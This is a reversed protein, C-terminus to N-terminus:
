EQSVKWGLNNKKPIKIWKLNSIEIEKSRYNEKMFPGYSCYSGLNDIKKNNTSNHHRTDGM